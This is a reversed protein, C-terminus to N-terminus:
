TDAENTHITQARTHVEDQAGCSERATYVAPASKIVASDHQVRVGTWKREQAAPRLVEELVAGVRPEGASKTSGGGVVEGEPAGVAEGELTGVAAGLM